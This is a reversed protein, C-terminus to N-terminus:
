GVAPTAKLFPGQGCKKPFSLAWKFVEGLFTVVRAQIALTSLKMVKFAVKHLYM